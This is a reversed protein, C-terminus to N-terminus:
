AKARHLVVAAPAGGRGGGGGGAPAASGCNGNGIKNEDFTRRAEAAISDSFKAFYIM